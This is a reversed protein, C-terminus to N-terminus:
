GPAPLRAYMAAFAARLEDHSGAPLQALYRAEEEHLFAALSASDVCARVLGTLHTALLALEGLVADPLM